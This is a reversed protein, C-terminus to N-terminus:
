TLHVQVLGCLPSDPQSAPTPTSLAALWASPCGDGSPLLSCGQSSATRYVQGGSPFFSLLQEVTDM